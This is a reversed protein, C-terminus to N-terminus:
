CGHAVRTLLITMSSEQCSMANLDDRKQEKRMKERLISNGTLSRGKLVPLAELWDEKLTFIEKEQQDFLHSM